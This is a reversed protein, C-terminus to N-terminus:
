SFLRLALPSGPEISAARMVQRLREVEKGIADLAAPAFPQRNDDVLLGDLSQALRVAFERFTAFSSDTAPARPVDLVVTIARTHLGGLAEAVFPAGEANSLTFAEGGASSERVFRGDAMLVCGSAEALQRIRTGHFTGNDPKVITLGIQADVETCIADLREANRLTELRSPPHVEGTLTVVLEQLRSFFYTLDPDSVRGDRSALQMGARVASYTARPQLPEWADGTASLGEWRVPKPLGVLLPEANHLISEGPHANAFVIATIAEYRADLVPGAGTPLDAPQPLGLEHEVRQETGALVVTELPQAPTAPPAPDNTVRAASGELLVDAPPQGFAEEARKRVKAEQLRNYIVVAGILLVGGAALWLQLESM